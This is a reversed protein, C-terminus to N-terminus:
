ISRIEQPKQKSIYWSPLDLIQVEKPLSPYEKKNQCISLDFLSEDIERNAIEIMQASPSYVGITFPSATEVCWWQWNVMDVNTVAKLGRRYFAAQRHYGYDVVSKAFDKASKTTKLDVIIREASSAGDVRGKCKVGTEKDKWFFSVEPTIKKLIPKIVPHEKVIEACAKLRKLDDADYYIKGEERLIEMTVKFEKGKATRFDIGDPIPIYTKAFHHPELVASHLITGELMAKTAPFKEGRLVRHEYISPLERFLNLESTSVWDKHSRYDDFSLDKYFGEQM